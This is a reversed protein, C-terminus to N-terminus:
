NQHFTPGNLVEAANKRKQTDTMYNVASQSCSKSAETTQKLKKLFKEKALLQDEYSLSQSLRRFIFNLCVYAKGNRNEFHTKYECHLTKLSNEDVDYDGVYFNWKTTVVEKYLDIVTSPESEKQGTLIKTVSEFADKCLKFKDRQNVIFLLIGEFTIYSSGSLIRTENRISFIKKINDGRVNLKTM